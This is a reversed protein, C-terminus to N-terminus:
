PNPRCGLTRQARAAAIDRGIQAMLAEISPFRIEERLKRDFRIEVEQGYLDGTFDLLHLETRLEPEPRHLTPRFGINLLGVHHTGRWLAEVVYVGRPPLVLGDVGLNATPFGLQRGLKDGPVVTAAFGYPRGLLESAKLLEGARITERIRTSSITHNDLTIPPLAHTAFGLQAGLKRLLAVNGARRHGFTFRNGVCVAHVRGFDHALSLVFAEATQLSFSRDFHILRIADVGLSGIVRLKQSLPYILAPSREPAVVSNPHRDFTIVVTSASQRKAEAVTRLIVEQHGLHVGDFVGIAACVGHNQAQWDSAERILRM